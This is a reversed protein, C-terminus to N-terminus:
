PAALPRVRDAIVRAFDPFPELYRPIEIKSINDRGHLVVRADDSIVPFLAGGECTFGTVEGWPLVLEDGTWGIWPELRVGVEDVVVRATNWWSRDVAAYFLIALSISTPIWPHRSVTKFGFYLAAITALLILVDGVLAGDTPRALQLPLTPAIIAAGELCATNM